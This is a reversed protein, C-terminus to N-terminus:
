DSMLSDAARHTRTIFQPAQAFPHVEHQAWVAMRTSLLFVVSALADAVDKSGNPPHDVKETQADRELGVLERHLLEHSPLDLRGDYIASKLAEYPEPNRDVSQIGTTFRQQRLLQVTDASQFGDATVFRINLGRETLNYIMSRIRSYTIEGDKPPRVQLAFDIRIHPVLEIAAGCEFEEFRSVCGMVIGTADYTRSLDLHVFRILGPHYFKKQYALVM